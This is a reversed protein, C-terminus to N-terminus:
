TFVPFPSVDFTILSLFMNWEPFQASFVEYKSLILSSKNYTIM